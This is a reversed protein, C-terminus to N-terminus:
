RSAARCSRTPTLGMLAVQQGIGQAFPRPAYGLDRAAARWDFRKDETMRLIQEDNLPSRRGLIRVAARAAPIPVGVQVHRRGLAASVDRLMARFPVPAPGPLDYAGGPGKGLAALYAAALDDAHVPQMLNAGRGFYPVVPSRAMFRVLRSMMRDQPGGYIMTPRLVTTRPDSLVPDEIRVYDDAASKLASFRGTTHVLVLHSADTAARMLSPTLFISALHLVRDAGRAARAMAAPDGLDGIAPEINLPLGAIRDWQERDKVAARVRGAHGAAALRELFRTGSLGAAGTVLLIGDM